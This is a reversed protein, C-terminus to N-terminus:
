LGASTQVRREKLNCPCRGCVTEQGSTTERPFLRAASEGRHNEGFFHVNFTTPVIVSLNAPLSSQQNPAPSREAPNMKDKQQEKGGRGEM